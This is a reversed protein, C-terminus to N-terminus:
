LRFIKKVREIAPLQLLLNLLNRSRITQLIVQFLVKPQFSVIKSEANKNLEIFRTMEPIWSTSLLRLNKSHVHLNYIPILKTESTKAYLEGHDNFIFELKSADIYIDGSDIVERTHVKTFGYRNRPDFGFLWVGIGFADFIGGHNSETNEIKEVSLDTIERNLSLALERKVIPFTLYYEPLSERLGFLVHMDSGPREQFQELLHFNFRTTAEGNPFYMLAAIDARPGYRLWHVESLLAIREFPFNPLIIVDSEIHLLKSTPFKKHYSNIAVMREITHRWYGGRFKADFSGFTFIQNFSQDQVYHAFEIKNETSWENLENRDTLLVIKQEPFLKQTRLINGLLYEPPKTGLHVFLLTLM